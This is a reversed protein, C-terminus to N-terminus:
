RHGILEDLHDLERRAHAAGNGELRQVAGHGEGDEGDSVLVDEDSDYEDDDEDEDESDDEEGSLFRGGDRGWFDVDDEGDEGDDIAEDDGSDAILYHRIPSLSRSVRHFMELPSFPINQAFSTRVSTDSTSDQVSLFYSSSLRHGLVPLAGPVTRTRTNAPRQRTEVQTNDAQQQGLEDQLQMPPPQPEIRQRQHDATNRQVAESGPGLLQLENTNFSDCTGCQNGLWHYRVSSKASCDNCQVVIRTDRFERPMPQSEIAHELKRWQLEMNVASKKCIPCKYATEMYRTYCSKHLYHGCPMAVISASSTFM